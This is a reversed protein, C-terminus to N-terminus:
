TWCRAYEAETVEEGFTTTGLTVVTYGVFCDPAAGHWHEEGAPTFVVDGAQVIRVDGDRTAIIGKGSKIFFLQGREHHHWYTRACPRFTGDWVTIGDAGLVKDLLVDGTTSGVQMGTMVPENTRGRQYEV